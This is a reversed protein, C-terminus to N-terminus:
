GDEGVIHGAGLNDWIVRYPDGTPSEATATYYSEENTGSLYAEQTLRYTIGNYTVDGYNHENDKM